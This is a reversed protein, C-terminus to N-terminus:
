ACMLDGIMDRGIITAKAFKRIAFGLTTMAIRITIAHFFEAVM